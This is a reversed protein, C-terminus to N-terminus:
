RRAAAPERAISINQDMRYAVGLTLVLLGLVSMTNALVFYLNLTTAGEVMPGTFMPIAMGFGLLLSRRRSAANIIGNYIMLIAAPVVFLLGVVADTHNVEPSVNLATIKTTPDYSPHVGHIMTTIGFWVMVMAALVGVVIALPEKNHLRPIMSFTLRLIQIFGLYLFAHAIVFTYVMITPYTDPNSIVLLQPLFMLMAYIASFLFSYTLLRAQHTKSSPNAKLRSSVFIWSCFTAIASILMTLANIPM